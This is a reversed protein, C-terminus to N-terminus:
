DHHVGTRVTQPGLNFKDLLAKVNGGSSRCGAM